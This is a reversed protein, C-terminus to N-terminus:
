EGNKIRKLMELYAEIANMIGTLAEEETDGQSVCGSLELCEVSYCGGEEETLIVSYHKGAIAVDVHKKM